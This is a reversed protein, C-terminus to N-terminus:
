RRQTIWKNLIQIAIKALNKYDKKDYCQLLEPADQRLCSVGRLTLRCGIFYFNLSVDKYEILGEDRLFSMCDGVFHVEIDPAIASIESADFKIRKPFSKTLVALILGVCEDFEDLSAM